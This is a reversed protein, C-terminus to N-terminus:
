SIKLARLSPLIVDRLDQQGGKTQMMVPDPVTRDPVQLVHDLSVRKRYNNAIAYQHTVGALAENFRPLDLFCNNESASNAM